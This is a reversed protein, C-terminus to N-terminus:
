SPVRNRSVFLHNNAPERINEQTHRTQTHMHTDMYIPCVAILHLRVPPLTALNQAGCPPQKGRKHAPLHRIPHGTSQSEDM